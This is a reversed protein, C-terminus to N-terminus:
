SVEAPSHADDRNQTKGLKCVVSGEPWLSRHNILPRCINIVFEEEGHKVHYNRDNARFVTMDISTVMDISNAM